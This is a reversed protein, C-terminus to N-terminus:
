QLMEVDAMGGNRAENLAQLARSSGWLQAGRGDNRGFAYRTRAPRNGRLRFTCMGEVPFGSGKFAHRSGFWLGHGFRMRSAM